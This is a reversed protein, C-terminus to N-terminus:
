ENKGSFQIEDVIVKQRAKDLSQLEKSTDLFVIKSLAVTQGPEVRQKSKIKFRRLEKGTEPHAFIYHWEIATLSRGTNNRVAASATYKFAYADRVGVKYDGSSKGRLEEISVSVKEYGAYKWSFSVVEIDPAGETKAADQGRADNPAAIPAAILLLALLLGAITPRVKAHQM